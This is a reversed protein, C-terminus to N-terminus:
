RAGFLRRANDMVARAVTEPAEGRAQAVAAATLTVWAPENTKGRHPEPALFPADTEVLLRELPVARVSERITEAKPFTVPGAFSIDCGLALFRELMDPGETFCHLVCGREPLGDEKLIALGEEHAERLHVVVPLGLRKALALQSRFVRRQDGRPSYDYHYDLGIEGVGCVRDDRGRELILAEVQPTYDKANHPHCGVLIRVEPLVAGPIEWDDLRQGADELWARGESLYGSIGWYGGLATALQLELEIEGSSRLWALASRLNEYEDSEREWEGLIVAERRLRRRESSWAVFWEAHRRRLAAREGLEELREGAYERITELM